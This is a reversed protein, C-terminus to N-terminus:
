WFCRPHHRWVTAGCELKERVSFPPPKSGDTPPGIMAAHTAASTLLRISKVRGIQHAIGAHGAAVLARALEAPVYRVHDGASTVLETKVAFGRLRYV